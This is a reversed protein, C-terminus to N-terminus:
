DGDLIWIFLPQRKNKLYGRENRPKAHPPNEASSNMRLVFASGQVFTEVFRTLRWIALGM